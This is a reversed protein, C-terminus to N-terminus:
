NPKDSVIAVTRGTRRAESILEAAGPTPRATAVAEVELRTLFRQV